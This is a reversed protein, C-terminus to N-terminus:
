TSSRIVSEGLVVVTWEQGYSCPQSFTYCKLPSENPSHFVRCFTRFLFVCLNQVDNNPASNPCQVVDINLIQQCVPFDSRKDGPPERIGGPATRRNIPKHIINMSVIRCGLPIPATSQIVHNGYILCKGRIFKLRQKLPAALNHLWYGCLDITSFNDLGHSSLDKWQRGETDCHPDFHPRTHARVFSSDPWSQRICVSTSGSLLAVSSM